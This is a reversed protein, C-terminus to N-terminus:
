ARELPEPLVGHGFELALDVQQLVGGAPHVADIEFPVIRLGGRGFADGGTAISSEARDDLVDPAM